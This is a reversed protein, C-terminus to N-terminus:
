LNQALEVTVESAQGTRLWDLPSLVSGEDTELDPNPTTFWRQVAVPHLDVDLVAIVDEIGPVTGKEAFQFRPLVWEDRIKIGFVSRGPGVLKQRVRSPNVGL